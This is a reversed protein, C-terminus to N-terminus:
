GDVPSRYGLRADLRRVPEEPGPEGTEPRAPPVCEGKHLKACDKHPLPLPETLIPPPETSATFEAPGRNGFFDTLQNARHGPRIGGPAQGPDDSFQSLQTDVHCLGGHLFVLYPGSRWGRRRPLCKESMMYVVQGGEIEKM